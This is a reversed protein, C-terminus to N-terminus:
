KAGRAQNCAPCRIWLTQMGAPRRWYSGVRNTTAHGCLFTTPITLGEGRAAKGMSYDRVNNIGAGSM